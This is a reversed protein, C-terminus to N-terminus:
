LLQITAVMRGAKVGERRYSYLNEDCISCTGTIEIQERPIGLRHLRLKNYQRLDVMPKGKDGERWWVGEGDKGLGLRTLVDLGVEYCCWSAGPGLVVQLDEPVSGYSEQLRLVCADLIGQASGQWGAHCAAAVHRKQDYFLVAICDATLINLSVGRRNTYLGDCPMGASEAVVEADLVDTGHVQSCFIAKHPDAGLLEFYAHRAALVTDRSARTSLGLDHAERTSFGHVVPRGSLLQSKIVKM